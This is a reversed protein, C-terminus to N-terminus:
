EVGKITILGPKYTVKVQKVDGLAWGVKTSNLDIVPVLRGDKNKKSVKRQGDKDLKLKISQSVPYYTPYYMEGSAFGSACLFMENDLWVRKNKRNTGLKLVQQFPKHKTKFTPM